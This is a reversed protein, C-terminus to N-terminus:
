VLAIELGALSGALNQELDVWLVLLCAWDEGLDKEFGVLIILGDLPEPVNQVFVGVFICNKGFKNVEESAAILEWLCFRVNFGSLVFGAIAVICPKTVTPPEIM